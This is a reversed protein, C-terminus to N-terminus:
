SPILLAALYAMMRNTLAAMVALDDSPGDPVNRLIDAAPLGPVSRAALACTLEAADWVLSSDVGWIMEFFRDRNHVRSQGPLERASLCASYRQGYWIVFWERRLPDTPGIPVEIAGDPPAAA